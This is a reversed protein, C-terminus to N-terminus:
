VPLLKKGSCITYFIRADFVIRSFCKGIRENSGRKFFTESLPYLHAALRAGVITSIREGLRKQLLVLFFVM